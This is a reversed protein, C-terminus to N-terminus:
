QFCWTADLSPFNTRAVVFRVLDMNADEGSGEGGSRRLHGSTHKPGVDSVSLSLDQADTALHDIIARRSTPPRPSVIRASTPVVVPPPRRVAVWDRAPQQLRQQHVRELRQQQRAGHLRQLQQARQHQAQLRWCWAGGALVTWKLAGQRGGLDLSAGRADRRSGTGRVRVRVPALFGSGQTGASEGAWGATTRRTRKSVFEPGSYTLRHRM